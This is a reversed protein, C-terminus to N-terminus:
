PLVGLAERVGEPLETDGLQQKLNIEITRSISLLPTGYVISKFPDELNKGIRNLILFIFTVVGTFFPTMIGAERVVALPLIFLFLYIFIEPFYDYQRPLPTNNIRECGGQLNLLDTLSQDLRQLRFETLYGDDSHAAIRVAMHHAIAAPVNKESRLLAALPEPLLRDVDPWPAEARLHCRLAHIYAIQTEVIERAFVRDTTFTLIQRALTRSTNVLGGWLM